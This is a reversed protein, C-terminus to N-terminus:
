YLELKGRPRRPRVTARHRVVRVDGCQWSCGVYVGRRPPQFANRQM